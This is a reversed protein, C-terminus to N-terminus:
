RSVTTVSPRKLLVKKKKNAHALLLILATDYRRAFRMDYLVAQISKHRLFEKSQSTQTTGVGQIRKHRTAGRISKHPVAGQISKHPAAGPISKHPAAGQTSKTHYLLEKSQTTCSRPNHRVVGQITDCVPVDM